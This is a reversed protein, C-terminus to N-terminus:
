FSSEKNKKKQKQNYNNLVGLDSPLIEMVPLSNFYKIIFFWTLYLKAPKLSFLISPPSFDVSM